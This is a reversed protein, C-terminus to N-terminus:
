RGDLAHLVDQARHLRPGRRLRRAGPDDAAAIILVLEGLPPMRPRRLEIRDRGAVEDPKAVVRAVHAHHAPTDEVGDADLPNDHGLAAHDLAVGGPAGGPQELLLRLREDARQDVRIRLGLEDLGDPARALV